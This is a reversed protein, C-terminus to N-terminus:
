DKVFTGDVMKGTRKSIELYAIERCADVDLKSQACIVALVVQVDGIADITEALDDKAVAKCLEGVEELLKQLQDAPTSEALLSRSEAWERIQEQFTM